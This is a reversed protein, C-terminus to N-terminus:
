GSAAQMNVRSSSTGHVCRIAAAAVIKGAEEMVEQSSKAESSWLKKEQKMIAATFVGLNPKFVLERLAALM